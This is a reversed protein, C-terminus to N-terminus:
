IVIGTAITVIDAIFCDYYDAHNKACQVPLLLIKNTVSVFQCANSEPCLLFQALYQLLQHNIHYQIFWNEQKCTNLQLYLKIPYLSKIQIIWSFHLLAASGSISKSVFLTNQLWILCEPMMNDTIPSNSIVQVQDNFQVPSATAENVSFVLKLNWLLYETSANKVM